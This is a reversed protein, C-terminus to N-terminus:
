VSVELGPISVSPLVQLIEARHSEMWPPLVFSQGLAEIPEDVDMGPGDTAIEFLVGGPERFYMSKFYNRNIIETIRLGLDLAASRMAGSDAEDKSRFAVHHVSGQGGRGFRTHNTPVLDVMGDGIQYRQIGSEEGIREAGFLGQLVRPTGRDTMWQIDVRVVRGLRGHQISPDVVLALELGDPDNFVVEDTGFRRTVRTDGLKRVLVDMGAASVGFVIRSVEGAGPISPGAGPIPFSTLLTGPRGIEDGFYFHYMAADDHNVTQKVLKMGLTGVYFDLNAQPDGAITTIHHFGKSFLQM